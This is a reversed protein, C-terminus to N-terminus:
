NNRILLSDKNGRPIDKYAEEFQILQQVMQKEDEDIYGVFLVKEITDRQFYAMNGDVLGHPYIFAGYDFYVPQGNADNVILARAVIVVNVNGGELRVVSGVPLYELEEVNINAGAGTTEQNITEATAGTLCVGLLVLVVCVAFVKTIRKM